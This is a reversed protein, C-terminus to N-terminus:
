GWRQRCTYAEAIRGLIDMVNTGARIHSETVEDLSAILAASNNKGRAKHETALAQRQADFVKCKAELLKTEQELKVREAYATDAAPPTISGIVILGSLMFALPTRPRVTSGARLGARAATESHCSGAIASSKTEIMQM